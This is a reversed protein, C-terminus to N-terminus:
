RTETESILMRWIKATVVEADEDLAMELESVLDAPKKHERIHTLIFDILDDEQVGLYEVIISTVFPKLFDDLIAESLNDWKVDWAFLANKDEPIEIPAPPLKRLKSESENPTDDLLNKLDSSQVPAATNKKTAVGLNIKIKSTHKQTVSEGISDLFQEASSSAKESAIEEAKDREDYEIERQRFQMRSKVWKSHDYYYEMTRIEHEGNDKFEGYKRLALKKERELRSELDFERNREREIASDRMRERGLWRRQLEEFEKELRAKYRKERQQELEYDSINSDENESAEEYETTHSSLGRPKEENSTGELAKTVAAQRQKERLKNEEEIKASKVKEMQISLIRFQKIEALIDDKQEIPVDIFDDENIVVEEDEKTDKVEEKKENETNSKTGLINDGGAAKNIQYWAKLKTTIDSVCDEISKGAIRRIYDTGNTTEYDSIYQKTNEDLHLQFLSAFKGDTITDYDVKSLIQSIVSLSEISTYRVFGFSTSESKSNTVRVFFEFTPVISLLTNVTKEDMSVPIYNIFGTRLQQENNMTGLRRVQIAQSPNLASGM